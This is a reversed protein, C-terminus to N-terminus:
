QFLRLRLGRGSAENRSEKISLGPLMGGRTAKVKGRHLGLCFKMACLLSRKDIFVAQTTLHYFVENHSIWFRLPGPEIGPGPMEKSKKNATIGKQESTTNMFSEDGISEGILLLNASQLVHSYPLIVLRVAEHCHDM